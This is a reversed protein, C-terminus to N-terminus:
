RKPKREGRRRQWGGPDNPRSVDLAKKIIEMKLEESGYRAVFIVSKLSEPQLHGRTVHQYLNSKHGDDDILKRIDTYDYEFKRPRTM